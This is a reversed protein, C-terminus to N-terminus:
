HLLPVTDAESLLGTRMTGAPPFSSYFTGSTVASMEKETPVLSCVQLTKLPQLNPNCNELPKFSLPSVVREDASGRRQGKQPSHPAPHPLQLLTSEEQTCITALDTDQLDQCIECTETTTYTPIDCNLSVAVTNTLRQPESLNLDTSSDQMVFVSEQASTLNHSNCSAIEEQTKEDELFKMSLLWSEDCHVKPGNKWHITYPKKGGNM